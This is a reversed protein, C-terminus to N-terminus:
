PVKFRAAKALGRRRQRPPASAQPKHLLAECLQEIQQAMHRASYNKQFEQQMTQGLTRRQQPNRILKALRRAYVEGPRGILVPKALAMAALIGDSRAEQDSALYVDCISLVDFDATYGVRGSVGAREFRQKQRSFDGAGIVLFIAQRHSTLTEIVVEVFEEDLFNGAAALVAAGAPIGWDPRSQASRPTAAGEFLYRSQVNRENWFNKSAAHRSADSYLITSIDGAYLPTTRCLNIKARAVPWCATLAAAADAQTTDYIVADIRDFIM